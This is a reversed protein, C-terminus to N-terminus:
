FNTLFKSIKFICARNHKESRLAFIRLIAIPICTGVPYVLSLLFSSVTDKIIPSQTNQYVACFCAIMYWSLFSLVFFTFFFIHFKIVICKYKKKAKYVIDNIEEEGKIDLIDDESLSLFEILYSIASAVLTSYIIQPIQYLFDFNGHDVYLKHMSDDDFFMANVAFSSTFNFIFLCIKITLMNFDTNNFFTFLVLQKSKLLAWYFKFISRDDYIIAEEYDMDNLETDTFEAFKKTLSKKNYLKVKISNKESDKNTENDYKELNNTNILNNANKEAILIKDRLHLFNERFHKVRRRKSRESKQYSIEIKENISNFRQSTNLNQSRTEFDPRNLISVHRTTIRSPLFDSNNIQANNVEQSGKHEEEYYSSENSDLNFPVNSRIFLRRPNIAPKTDHEHSSSESDSPAYKVNIKIGCSKKLNIPRKRSNTENKQSEKEDSDDIDNIKIDIENNEGEKKNEKESYDYNGYRENGTSMKKDTTSYLNDIGTENRSRGYNMNLFIPKLKKKLPPASVDQKEKEIEVSNNKKKKKKRTKENSKKTKKKKLKTKPSSLFQNTSVPISIVSNRPNTAQNKAEEEEQKKIKDLIIKKSLNIKFEKKKYDLVNNLIDAVKKRETIYYWVAFVISIAVMIIMILGGWNKKFGKWSFVLKYCKLIKLNSNNMPDFFSASLEPPCFQENGIIDTNIEDMVGCECYAKNTTQNFSKYKCGEECLTINTNYFDNKRDSLLVDTGNDTSYTSCIDNYFTDEPNLVDYGDKSLDEVLNEVDEDLEVPTNIKVKEDSCLSTNLKYREYPHYLEYQVSTSKAENNKIDSKLILIYDIKYYNLLITECENLDISSINVNNDSKSLNSTIVQLYMGNGKILLGDNVSAESNIDYTKDYILERLNNLTEAVTLPTVRNVECLGLRQYAYKCYNLCEITNQNNQYPITTPCLDDSGLCEILFTINNYFFRKECTIDCKNQDDNLKVGSGSCLYCKYYNPETAPIPYYNSSTDCKLCTGHETSFADCETCKEDCPSFIQKNEDYYYKRPLESVCEEEDKIAYYGEQCAFKCEFPNDPFPETNIPCSNAHCYLDHNYYYKYYNEPCKKACENTGVVIHKYDDYYCSSNAYCIIEINTEDNHWYYSCNCRKNVDDTISNEPCTTYCKFGLQYRDSPCRDKSCQKTDMTFYPYDDNICKNQGEYCTVENNNEDINFAYNCKCIKNVDDATTYDPCTVYCTHNYTYYNEPCNNKVCERTDILLYEYEDGKCNYADINCTIEISDENSHWTYKCLCIKNQEETTTYDPCSSYCTYNFRYTGTPCSNIICEKTDFILYKYEEDICNTQNIHCQIEQTTSDYYWPFKCLCIKNTEDTTTYYPCTRFCNFNFKFYGYPCNDKKCEKTDELYYKYSENICTEEGIYCSTEQTMQDYHWTYKCKCTKSNIDLTTYDPCTSYCTFNYRYYNDPCNNKICQKTDLVLFKYLEVVCTEKNVNCTIEDATTQQWTYKCKCITNNEDATTYDPCTVYCTHNYTYYNDPCKDKVCERTDMLFFNYDSERCYDVDYCVIEKTNINTNIYTHWAHICDCTKNLDNPNTLEPCNKYCKFGFTYYDDKCNNQVCEKTDELFYNYDSYLCKEEEDEYCDIEGTIIDQHWAHHCKCIM